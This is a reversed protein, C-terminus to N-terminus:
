CRPQRLVGEVHGSRQTHLVVYEEHSSPVNRWPRDKTFNVTLKTRRAPPTFQNRSQRCVANMKNIKQSVTNAPKTTGCDVVVNLLVGEADALRPEDFDAEHESEQCGMHARQGKGNRPDSDVEASQSGCHKPAVYMIWLVKAEGECNTSGRKSEIALQPDGPKASWTANTQARCDSKWAVMPTQNWWNDISSSRRM